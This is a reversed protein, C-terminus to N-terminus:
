ENRSPAKFAQKLRYDLGGMDQEAPEPLKNELIHRKVEKPKDTEGSFGRLKAMTQIAADLTQEDDYKLVESLNKPLGAEVLKEAALLSLERAKITKEREDLEAARKDRDRSLRDAVIRNVDEQTFTREGAEPNSQNNEM